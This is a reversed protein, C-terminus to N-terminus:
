RALKELENQTRNFPISELMARFRHYNIRGGQSLILFERHLEDIKSEQLGTLTSLKKYDFDSLYIEDTTQQERMSSTITPSVLSCNGTSESASYYQSNSKVLSRLTMSRMTTRLRDFRKRRLTETTSPIQPRKGNNSGM